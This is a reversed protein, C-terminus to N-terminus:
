CCTNVPLQLWCCSNPRMKESPWGQLWVRWPMLYSNRGTVKGSLCSFPEGLNQCCRPVRQGWGKRSLMAQRQQALCFMLFLSVFMRLVHPHSTHFIKFMQNLPHSHHCYGVGSKSAFRALFHLEVTLCRCNESATVAFDTDHGWFEQFNRLSPKDQQPYHWFKVEIAKMRAHATRRMHANSWPHDMTGHYTLPHYPGQVEMRGTAMQEMSRFCHWHWTNPPWLPLSMGWCRNGSLQRCPPSKCPMCKRLNM